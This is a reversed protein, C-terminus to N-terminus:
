QGEPWRQAEDALSPGPRSPMLRETLDAARRNSWGDLILMFGIWALIGAVVLVAVFV